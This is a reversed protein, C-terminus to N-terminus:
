RERQFVRFTSSWYCESKLSPEHIYMGVSHFSSTLDYAECSTTWSSFANMCGVPFDDTVMTADGYNNSADFIIIGPDSSVDVYAPIELNATLNIILREDANMRFWGSDLEAREDIWFWDGSYYDNEAEETWSVVPTTYDGGVITSVFNFTWNDGVAGLGARCFDYEAGIWDLYLEVSPEVTFGNNDFDRELVKRDSNVKVTYGDLEDPDIDLYLRVDDVAELSVGEFTQSFDPADSGTRFVEVLLDVPPLAGYGILSAGSPEGRNQIIVQVEDSVSLPIVDTITLDPLGPCYRGRSSLMGNEVARDIVERVRNDPDLRVCAGYVPEWNFQIDGLQARENVELTANRFTYRDILEGEPTTAEIVLDQNVWDAEGMNHLHIIHFGRDNDYTIGEVQLDPLPDDSAGEAIPALNLSVVCLSPNGEVPYENFIEGIIGERADGASVARDGGCLLRNDGGYIEFGLQLSDYPDEPDDYPLELVLPSFRSNTAAFLSGIFYGHNDNLGLTPPTSTENVFLEPSPNGYIDVEPVLVGNFGDLTLRQENAIFFATVPMPNGLDGVNLVQFTISVSLPCEESGPEGGSLIAPDSPNSFDGDPFSDRFAV